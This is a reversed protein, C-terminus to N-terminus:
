CIETQLSLDRLSFVAAYAAAAAAACPEKRNHLTPLLSSVIRFVHPNSMRM